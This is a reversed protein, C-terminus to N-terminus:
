GDAPQMYGPVVGRRIYDTFLGFAILGAAVAFIGAPPAPLYHACTLRLRGILIPVFEIM